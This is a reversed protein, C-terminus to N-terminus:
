KWYFIRNDMGQIREPNPQSMNKLTVLTKEFKALQAEEAKLKNAINTGTPKTM